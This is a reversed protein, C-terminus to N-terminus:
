DINKKKWRTETLLLSSHHLIANRVRDTTFNWKFIMKLRNHVSVKVFHLSFFNSSFNNLIYLYLSWKYSLNLKYLINQWISVFIEIPKNSLKQVQRKVSQVCITRVFRHVLKSYCQHLCVEWVKTHMSIVQPNQYFVSESGIPKPCLRLNQMEVWSWHLTSAAPGCVVSQTSLCHFIICITFYIHDKKIISDYIAKPWIKTKRFNNSQQEITM